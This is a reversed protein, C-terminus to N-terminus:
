IRPGENSWQRKTQDNGGLIGANGPEQVQDPSALEGAIPHGQCLSEGFFGMVNASTAGHVVGEAVVEEGMGIWGHMPPVLVKSGDEKVVARQGFDSPLETKAM